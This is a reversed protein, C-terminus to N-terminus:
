GIVELVAEAQLRFLSECRNCRTKDATGCRACAATKVARYVKDELCVGDLADRIRDLWKDADGPYKGALVWYVTSKSFGATKCFRYVTGHKEEIAARLAASDFAATPM